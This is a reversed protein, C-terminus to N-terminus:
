SGVGETTVAESPGGPGVAEYLREDGEPLIM